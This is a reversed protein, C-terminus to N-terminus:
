ASGRTLPSGARIVTGDPIDKMIHSGNAIVVNSGIRIGLYITVGMGVLTNEGVEVGGALIAGPSLHTHSAIVCDHSVITGSNIITNDGLKAASGVMAGAFIQNGVGMVVSPEVMARPHILNPIKFGATILRDYLKARARHNQVSGIGLVAREIGDARLQALLSSNGLVPVGLVEADSSRDDVAAVPFFKGALRMLDILVRAHGSAGYVVVPAGAGPPLPLQERNRAAVVSPAFQIQLLREVDSEKVIGTLGLNSLDLGHREALEQAKRTIRFPRDRNLSVENLSAKNLAADSIAIPEDPSATLVCLLSNVRAQQGKEVRLNRIYGSCPAEIDLAAKTSEVVFLVDGSRVEAGEEVRVDVITVEDENANLLPVRLVQM